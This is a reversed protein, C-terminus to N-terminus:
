PAQEWPLREVALQSLMEWRTKMQRRHHRLARHYDGSDIMLALARQMHGPPHRVQYRRVRRLERVLEEPGVLFGLRLGPALFKSFTGLYLVDGTSDLAKLAPSPSGEYRFESDYDDEIVVTGSIAALRLLRRRREMSLTVNTPHHHSPTLYILATGSLTDPPQLGDQDVNIGYVQAGTRLFIHRADLYGPNEIGVRQHPGLLTRGLLDLGHQSGVTILIEAPTAEIGRATLIERRIMEILMQDDAGISDQLSAFAHPQYLAERLSRVWATAPFTHVDIQGAVFPYPYKDWDAAKEVDPVGEDAYRRMRSSWDIVPENVTVEAEAAALMEPNVFIGRREHSLVLGENLLEQYALNITNRAVKLEAALERSSPLRRRPDFVGTAISHEIVRRVQRYLPESSGRNVEIMTRPM